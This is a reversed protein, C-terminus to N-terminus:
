KDVGVIVPKLALPPLAGGAVEFGLRWWDNGPFVVEAGFAGGTAGGVAIGETTLTAVPNARASQGAKAIGKELGSLVRLSVPGKRPDPKFFRSVGINKEARLAQNLLSNTLGESNAIVDIARDFDYYGKKALDANRGMSIKKFNDLVRVAGISGTKTPLLWPTGLMSIGYTLTEASNVMPQLSPVVPDEEGLIFDSTERGLFDGTLAGLITGGLIVAGKAIPNPIPLKAAGVAGAYAGALMGGGPAATRKAKEMFALYGAGDEGGFDEVNTFFPLIQEDSLKRDEVSLDQFGPLFNFLPATGNRLTDYSFLGRPATGAQMEVISSTLNSIGQTKIGEKFKEPTFTFAEFVPIDEAKYTTEEAM